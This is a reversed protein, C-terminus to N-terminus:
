TLLKALKNSIKMKQKLIKMKKQPTPNSSLAKHKTPLCAVVQARKANTIKSTPNQKTGPGAQVVIRKNTSEQTASSSPCTGGHGAM